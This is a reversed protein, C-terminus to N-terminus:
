LMLFSISRIIVIQLAKQCIVNSELETSNSKIKGSNSESRTSDFTVSIANFRYAASVFDVLTTVPQFSFREAFAPKNYSVHARLGDCM